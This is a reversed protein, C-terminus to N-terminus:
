RWPKALWNRWLDSGVRLHAPVNEGMSPVFVEMIRHKTCRKRNRTGPIQTDYQSQPYVWHIGSGLPTPFCSSVGDHIWQALILPVMYKGRLAVLPAMPREFIDTKSTMPRGLIWCAYLGPPSPATIKPPKWSDLVTLVSAEPLSFCVPLSNFPCIIFFSRRQTQLSQSCISLFLLLLQELWM